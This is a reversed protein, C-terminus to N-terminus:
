SCAVLVNHLDLTVRNVAIDRTRDIECVQPRPDLHTWCVCVDSLACANAPFTWIHLVLMAPYVRVCVCVCVRAHVRVCVCACVCAFVRVCVCVCRWACHSVRVYVRSCTCACVCSCACVCVCSCACACVCLFVCVCVRALVCLRACLVNYLFYLFTVRIYV